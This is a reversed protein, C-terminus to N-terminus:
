PLSYTLPEKGKNKNKYVINKRLLSLLYESGSLMPICFVGLESVLEVGLDVFLARLRDEASGVRPKPPTFATPFWPLEPSCPPYFSDNDKTTQSISPSSHVILCYHFHRSGPSSSVQPPDNVLGM